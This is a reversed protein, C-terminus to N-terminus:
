ANQVSLQNAQPGHSAGIGSENLARTAPEGALVTPSSALAIVTRVSSELLDSPPRIGSCTSKQTKFLTLNLRTGLGDSRGSPVPRPVLSPNPRVGTGHHIPDRVPSVSMAFNGVRGGGAYVGQLCFLKGNKSQSAKASLSFSYSRQTLTSPSIILWQAHMFAAAYYEGAPLLTLSSGM